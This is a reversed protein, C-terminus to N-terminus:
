CLVLGKALFIVPELGSMDEPSVKKAAPRSHVANMRAIPQQLESLKQFNHNAAEDNSYYLRIASNVARAAYGWLSVFYFYGMLGFFNPSVVTRGFTFPAVKLM